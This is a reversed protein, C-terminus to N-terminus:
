GSPWISLNIGWGKTGTEHIGKACNTLTNEEEPSLKLITNLVPVLRLKEDVNQLSVFKVIVNKLYEFNQAHKERELSRQLRKIEEKLVENLQTLRASDSEAESLLITLHKIRNESKDLKTQLQSVDQFSKKTDPFESQNLM